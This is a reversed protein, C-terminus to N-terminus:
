SEDKVELFGHKKKWSYVNGYNLGTAYAMQSTTKGEEQMRLLDEHFQDAKTPAKRQSAMLGKRRRFSLVKSKSCSMVGAIEYDHLGKNYLKMMMEDDNTIGLAFKIDKVSEGAQRAIESLPTEAEFLKRAESLKM